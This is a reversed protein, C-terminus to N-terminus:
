KRHKQLIGAMERGIKTCNLEQKIWCKTVDTANDITIYNEYVFRMLRSCDELDPKYRPYTMQLFNRNNWQQGQTCLPFVRCTTSCHRHQEKNIGGCMNVAQMHSSVYHIGKLYDQQGSGGTMIVQNGLLGTSVAGLGTAEGRTLSV